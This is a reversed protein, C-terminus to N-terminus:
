LSYQWHPTLTVDSAINWTGSDVKTNGNYWGLFTYGERTLNPLVYGEGYAVEIISFSGENYKYDVLESGKAVASSTQL